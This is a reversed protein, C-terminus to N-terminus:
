RNLLEIIEDIEYKEDNRRKTIIGKIMDHSNKTIPYKFVMVVSIIMFFVPIVTFSNEIGNMAQKTQVLLSNDLGSLALIIGLLQVSIACAIAEALSQLSMIIGERRKGSVIEDVECIDYLMSPFLQWYCSSGLSFIFSIIVIDRFTNLGAISSIIVGISSVVVCVVFTKNKDLIKSIGVILPVFVIGAITSIFYIKSISGPDMNLCFQLLYMRDANVMTSGILFFLSGGILYRLAKIKLVESYDHFMTKILTLGSSINKNKNTPVIKHTSIEKGRLFNWTILISLTAILAVIGGARQWAVALTEGIGLLYDVIITPFVVGITIGIFNFVYAYSRLITREQYDDTLEAGLALYPIFFTSFSVWFIITLTGYYLIKASEGIDLTTFLMFLAIGLPVSAVLLFPRRRGYRSVSKDSVYGIILSFVSDCISGIAIIAGAIIPNMKVVATLFFLLFTTVLSYSCADGIAATSYAIKLKIPIKKERSM